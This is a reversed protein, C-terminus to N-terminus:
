YLFFKPTFGGQYTGPVPLMIDGANEADSSFNRLQEKIDKYWTQNFDESVLAPEVILHFGGRTQVVNFAEDNIKKRLNWLAKTFDEKSCDFDFSVFVSRSKAKQIESMVEQHPNFGNYPQLALDLLKKTSNRNAKIFDRPNITIYLALAEQPVTIDKQKYSGVPCSLQRIKDYLREKNSTFRKLQAKDSRIHPLGHTDKVYKSRVFLCLYFCENDRLDPLWEIFKRLEYSDTIIQYNQM